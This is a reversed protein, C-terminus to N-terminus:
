ARCSRARALVVAAREVRAQRVRERRGAVVRERDHGLRQGGVSTTVLRVSLPTMM